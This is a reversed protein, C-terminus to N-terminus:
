QTRTRPFGVQLVFRAIYYASGGPHERMEALMKRTSRV